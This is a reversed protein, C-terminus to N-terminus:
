PKKPPALALESTKGATIEVFGRLDGARVEYKGPVLNKLAAKGGVVEAGQRIVQLALLRYLEAELPPKAPDDAPAALVTGTVGAPVSVEVGGVQAPDIAINETKATGAAVDVWKWATPGGAIAATLLYRGPALKVHEYRFARGVGDGPVYTSTESKTAPAAGAPVIFPVTVEPFSVLTETFAAYGIRLEAGSKAGVATVNGTVYPADDPGPPETPARAYVAEFTGALFSKDPEQTSIYIKGPVKGGQRAGLELTMAYGPPFRFAGKGEADLWVQPVDPGPTADETVKWKRGFPQAGPPLGLEIKVVRAAPPNGVAARFVLEAGALEVVPAV